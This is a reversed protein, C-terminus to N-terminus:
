YAPLDLGAGIDAVVSEFVRSHDTDSGPMPLTDSCCSSSATRLSVVLKSIRTLSLMASSIFIKGLSTISVLIRTAAVRLRCPGDKARACITLRPSASIHQLGASNKSYSSTSLRASGSLAGLGASAPRGGHSDLLTAFGCKSSLIGPGQRRGANASFRNQTVLHIAAGLHGFICHHSRRLPLLRQPALGGSLITRPDDAVTTLVAIHMGNM